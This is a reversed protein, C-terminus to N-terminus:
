DWGQSNEAFDSASGLNAYQLIDHAELLMSGLNHSQNATVNWPVKDLISTFALPGSEHRHCSLPQVEPIKYDHFTDIRHQAALVRQCQSDFNIGISAFAM